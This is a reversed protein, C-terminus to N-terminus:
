AASLLVPRDTVVQHDLRRRREERFCGGVGDAAAATAVAVVVVFEEEFRIVDADAVQAM